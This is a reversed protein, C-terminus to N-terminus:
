RASPLCCSAGLLFRGILPLATANAWVIAVYTLLIFWAAVFGHDADFTNRVFSLAGGDDPYLKMMYHYNVGVILMILAGILFGLVTGLPGAIPLFSNGPMMFAGWGVACGFSLAWAGLPTVSGAPKAGEKVPKSATNM